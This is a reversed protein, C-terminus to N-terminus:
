KPPARGTCAVLARRGSGQAKCTDIVAAAESVGPKAGAWDLSVRAAYSAKAPDPAPAGAFARGRVELRVREGQPAITASDIGKGGGVRKWRWVGTATDRTWEATRGKATLTGDVLFGRDAGAVTVRLNAPADGARLAAAPLSVRLLYGRPGRGRVPPDTSWIIEFDDPDFRDVRGQLGGFPDDRLPVCVALGPANAVRQCLEGACPKEAAVCRGSAVDCRQAPGECPDVACQADSTCAPIMCRPEGGMAVCQVGPM